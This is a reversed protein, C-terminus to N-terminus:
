SVGAPKPLPQIATLARAIEDAPLEFDELQGHINYWRTPIASEPLTTKTEGM